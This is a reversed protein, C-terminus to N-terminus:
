VMEGNEYFEYENADCADIFYEMTQTFEWDEQCATLWSDLCDEMLEEYTTNPNPNKIFDRVPELLSYDICYGTPCSEQFMVKSRRQKPYNKCYWKGEYLDSFHHLMLWNALRQGKLVEIDYVVDDMRLDFRMYTRGWGGYSWGKTVVHFREAFWELSKRNEDGWCYDDHENWKEHARERAQDSLEHITYVNRTITETRM